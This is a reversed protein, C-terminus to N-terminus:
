IKNDKVLLRKRYVPFKLFKIILYGSSSIKKQYIFRIIQNLIYKLFNIKRYRLYNEDVDVVEYGSICCIIGFIREFIHALTNGNKNATEFDALTFKNQIPKLLKARILFMTGAVFTYKENSQLKLVNQTIELAKKKVCGEHDDSSCLIVNVGAVIGIDNRKEIFSITKNWDNMFSTLEKRWKDGSADFGLLSCPIPKDSKTHLKVVYDYDDLNVQNLIHIFPGVDYGRNEVIEIKANPFTKKIDSIIESHEEVMTVFLDFKHSTINLICNKLEEYLHPYYIHLHVLIPKM